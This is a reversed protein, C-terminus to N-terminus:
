PTFVLRVGFLAHASDKNLGTDAPLLIKQTRAHEVPDYWSGGRISGAPVTLEWVNGHMDFFGGQNAERTGVSRPGTAGSLSENTIAFRAVTEYTTEEGWSWSSTTGSACADTWQENSPIALRVGSKANFAFLAKNVLDCSLNYAPKEENISAKADRESGFVSEPVAMWPASDEGALINWQAQTVEFVGIWSEGAIGRVRRFVMLGKRYRDGSILDEIASETHFAGTALDCILYPANAVATSGGLGENPSVEGGGIGVGLDGTGGCGAMGLACIVFGVQYLGPFNSFRM